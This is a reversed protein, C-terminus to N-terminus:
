LVALCGVVFSQHDIDKNKHFGYFVSEMGMTFVESVNQGPYIRSVYPDTQIDTDKTLFKGLRLSSDDSSNLSRRNLFSQELKTLKEDPIVNEMRHGFEHLMVSDRGNSAGIGENIVIKSTVSSDTKDKRVWVKNENMFIQADEIVEEQNKTILRENKRAEFIYEQLKSIHPKQEWSNLNNEPQTESFDTTKYFLLEQSVSDNFEGTRITEKKYDINFKALVKEAIEKENDNFKVWGHYVPSETMISSTVSDNVFKDTYHAHVNKRDIKEFLLSMERGENHYDIWKNPYNKVINNHFSETLEKDSNDAIQANGGMTRIQSLVNRISEAKVHAETQEKKSNYYDRDDYLRELEKSLSQYDSRVNVLNQRVEKMQSLFIKDDKSITEDNNNLNNEITEDITKEKEVDTSELTNNIPDSGFVSIVYNEYIKSNKYKSLFDNMVNEAQILTKEKSLYVNEAAFDIESVKELYKKINNQDNESFVEEENAIELIVSGVFSCHSEIKSFMENQIKESNSDVAKDLNKNIEEIATTIENINNLSNDKNDFSNSNIIGYRQIQESNNLTQSIKRRLRRQTSNDCDCRVGGKTKLQCM